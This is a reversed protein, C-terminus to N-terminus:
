KSRARRSRRGSCRSARVPVRGRGRWVSRLVLLAAVAVLQGGLVVRNIDVAPRWSVKGDKVVFVGLGRAATGFGGGTGSGETEGDDPATGAGGGGGGAVKAVPLVLVGDQVIPEGFVRGATGADVARRLVELVGKDEFVQGM